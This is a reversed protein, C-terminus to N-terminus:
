NRQDEDLGAGTGGNSSDTIPPCAKLDRTTVIRQFRDYPAATFLLHFHEESM